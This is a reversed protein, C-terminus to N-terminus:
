TLKYTKSSDSDALNIKTVTPAKWVNQRERAPHYWVLAVHLSSLCRFPQLPCDWPTPTSHEPFWISCGQCFCLLALFSLSAVRWRKCEHLANLSVWCAEWPFAPELWMDQPEFRHGLDELLGKVEPIEETLPSNGVMWVSAVLSRSVAVDWDFDWQQCLWNKFSKADSRLFAIIPLLM